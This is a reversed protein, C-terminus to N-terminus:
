EILNIILNFGKALHFSEEAGKTMWLNDDDDLLIFDFDRAQKWYEAAKERGMVFLATSLADSRVGSDSIVTVSVTGNDVPYGTQPDIIHCYRKGDREFYREYNGSTAVVKDHCAVSGFYSATNEPDAIGIKWDKGDSKKGVAAVTGGLNLIGADAGCCKMVNRAKDAAYGKAVAGLDIKMGDGIKVRYKDPNPSESEDSSLSVERLSVNKLLSDIKEQSPVQYEKSIFGWEEVLPYVSIDLYGELRSCEDLSKGLIDYTESEVEACKDRNLRGIDSDERSASLLSDLREIESRVSAATHADGRIEINMFTDMCEFSDAATEAPAYACGTLLFLLLLATIKKMM